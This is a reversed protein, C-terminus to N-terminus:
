SLFLSGWDRLYVKYSLAISSSDRHQAASPLTLLLRQRSKLTQTCPELRLCQVELSRLMLQQFQTLPQTERPLACGSISVETLGAPLRHVLRGAM